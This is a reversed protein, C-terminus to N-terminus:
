SADSESLRLIIKRLRENMRSIQRLVTDTRQGSQAAIEGATLGRQYVSRYLERDRGSLREYASDLLDRLIVTEEVSARSDPVRVDMPVECRLKIRRRAYNCFTLYVARFVWGRPNPHRLVEDAKEYAMSFVDQVIDTADCIPAGRNRLLWCTLARAHPYERLTFEDFLRHAEETNM